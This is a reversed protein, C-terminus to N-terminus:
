PAEGEVAATLRRLAAQLHAETVTTAVFWLGTDYSQEDAIARAASQVAPVPAAPHTYLARVEYCPRGDFTYAVLDRLTDAETRGKLDLPKWDVEEPWVNPNVGPNTWRQQWMAPEPEAQPVPAAAGRDILAQAYSSVRPDLATEVHWNVVANLAAKADPFSDATGLHLCILENDIADRWPNPMAPAPHLYLPEASPDVAFATIGDEYVWVMKKTYRRWAVPKPALEEPRTPRGQYGIHDLTDLSAKRKSEFGTM